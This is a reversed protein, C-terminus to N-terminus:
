NSIEPVITSLAKNLENTRAVMAATKANETAALTKAQGQVQEETKVLKRAVDLPTQAATAKAPATSEGSFSITVSGKAMTAPVTVSIGNSKVHEKVHERAGDLKSVASVTEFAKAAKSAESAKKYENTAAKLLRTRQEEDKNKMADALVKDAIAKDTAAVAEERHEERLSKEVHQEESMLAVKESKEKEVVASKVEVEKAAAVAAAEAAREEPTHEHLAAPAKAKTGTAVAFNGPGLGLTPKYVTPYISEAPFSIDSLGSYGGHAERMPFADYNYPVDGSTWHVGGVNGKTIEALHQQEVEIAPQMKEELPDCDDLMASGGTVQQVYCGHARGMNEKAFEGNRDQTLSLAQRMKRRHAAAEASQVAYLGHGHSLQNKLWQQSQRERATEREEQAWRNVQVVRRKESLTLRKSNGLSHPALALGTARRANSSKGKFGLSVEVDGVADDLIDAAQTADDAPASSSSLQQVHVVKAVSTQANKTVHRHKLAAHRAHAHVRQQQSVTDEITKHMSKKAAAVQHELKTVELDLKQKKVQQELTHAEAQEKKLLLQQSTLPHMGHPKNAFDGGQSMFDEEGFTKTNDLARTGDGDWDMYYLPRQRKDGEDGYTKDKSSSYAFQAISPLESNRGHEEVWDYGPSVGHFFDGYHDWKTKHMVGPKVGHDGYQTGLHEGYGNTYVESDDHYHVPFQYGYYQDDCWENDIVDVRRHTGTEYPDDHYDCVYQQRGDATNIWDGFHRQAWNGRRRNHNIGYDNFVHHEGFRDGSIFGKQQRPASIQKGEAAKEKAFFLPQAVAPLDAGAAHVLATEANESEKQAAQLKDKAEAAKAQLSKITNKSEGDEVAQKVQGEAARLLQKLAHAAKESKLLGRSGGPAALASALRSVVTSDALETRNAGMIFSVHAVAVLAVAAGAILVAGRTTWGATRREQSPGGLTSGYAPPM